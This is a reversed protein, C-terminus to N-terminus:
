PSDGLNTMVARHENWRDLLKPLEQQLFTFFARTESLRAAAPTDAGLAEIGAQLMPDWRALMADKRVTATYWVDARVRYNDMRSGPTHERDVLEVQILYRVAGSIAGASARLAAALEAATMRGTDSTLLKVFTRSPMRPMGAETLVAAFREVFHAVAASDRQAPENVTPPV